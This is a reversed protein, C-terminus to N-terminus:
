LKNRYCFYLGFPKRYKFMKVLYEGGRGKYNRKTNDGELDDLTMWSVMTKIVYDPEKLRFIHFKNGEETDAELMEVGGVDKESFYRDILDGPATKPCYRHKKILSVTYLGKMVIAVICNAVCIGSEMM